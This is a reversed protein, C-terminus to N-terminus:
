VCSGAPPRDVTGVLSRLAPLLRHRQDAPLADLLHRQAEDARRAADHLVDRGASTVAVLRVRRDRPHPERVVLGRAELVDVTAVATTKDLGVAAALGLLPRPGPAAVRLVALHRPTLDLGALSSSVVGAVHQLSRALLWGLDDAVEAPVLPPGERCPEQPPM